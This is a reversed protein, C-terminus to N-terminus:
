CRCGRDTDPPEDYDGISSRAIESRLPFIAGRTELLIPSIWSQTQRFQKPTAGMADCAAFQVAPSGAIAPGIKDDNNRFQPMGRHQAWAGSVGGIGHRMGFKLIM